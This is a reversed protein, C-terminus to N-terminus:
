TELTGNWARAFIEALRQACGNTYEDMSRTMVYLCAGDPDPWVELWREQRVLKGSATSPIRGPELAGASLNIGEVNELPHQWKGRLTAFYRDKDWTVHAAGGFFQTVVKGIQEVTPRRDGTWRVVRDLAM